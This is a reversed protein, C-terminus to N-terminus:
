GESPIPFPFFVSPFFIALLKLQTHQVWIGEVQVKHWSLLLM